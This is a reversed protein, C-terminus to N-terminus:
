LQRRKQWPVDEKSPKQINERIRKIIDFFLPNSFPTVQKKSFIM